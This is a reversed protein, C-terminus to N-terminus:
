GPVDRLRLWRVSHVGGRELDMRRPVPQLENLRGDRECLTAQGYVPRHPVRQLIGHARQPGAAGALLPRPQVRRVARRPEPRAGGAADRHLM